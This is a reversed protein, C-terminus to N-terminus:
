DLRAQAILAEHVRQCHAGARDRWAAVTREDLGFAQVIAQVPCGYALLTVVTVILEAPKRLGAFVTGEKAVKRKAAPRAGTAHASAGMASLIAKGSKEEQKASWIRAFYRRPM